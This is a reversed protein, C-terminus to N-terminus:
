VRGRRTQTAPFSGTFIGRRIRWRAPRRPRGDDFKALDEQTPPNTAWAMPPQPLAFNTLAAWAQAATQNTGDARANAAFLAFVMLCGPVIKLANKM